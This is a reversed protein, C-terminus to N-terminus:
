DAVFKTTQKEALKPMPVRWESERPKLAAVVSAGSRGEPRRPLIGLVCEDDPVPSLVARNARSHWDKRSLRIARKPEIRNLLQSKILPDM